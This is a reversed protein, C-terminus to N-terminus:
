SAQLTVTIARAQNDGRQDVLRVKSGVNVGPDVNSTVNKADLDFAHTEKGGTMVEIRKGPEYQTVTGVFTEAQGTVTGHDTDTKTTTKMELTTGVQTSETERKTTGEATTTTTELKSETKDDNPRACRVVLVFATAALLPVFRLRRM